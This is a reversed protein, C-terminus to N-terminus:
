LIPPARNPPPRLARYSYFRARFRLQWSLRVCRGTETPLADDSLYPPYRRMGTVDERPRPPFVRPLHSEATAKSVTRGVIQDYVRARPPIINLFGCQGTMAM